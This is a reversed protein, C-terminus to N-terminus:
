VRRSLQAHGACAPRSSGYEYLVTSVVALVRVLVTAIVLKCIDGELFFSYSRLSDGEKSPHIALFTYAHTITNTRYRGIGVVRWRGGGGQQGM